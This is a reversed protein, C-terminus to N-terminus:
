GNNRELIARVSLGLPTLRFIYQHADYTYKRRFGDQLSVVLGMKWLKVRTNGSYAFNDLVAQKQIKTLGKAIEEPTMTGIGRKIAMAGM